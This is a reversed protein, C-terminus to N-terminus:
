DLFVNVPIQANTSAPHLTITLPLQPVALAPTTLVAFNRGVICVPDHSRAVPSLEGSPSVHTIRTPLAGEYNCPFALQPEQFPTVVYIDRFYLIGDFACSLRHRAQTSSEVQSPLAAVSFGLNWQLSFARILDYLRQLALHFAISGSPTARYDSVVHRRRQSIADITGIAAYDWGTGGWISRLSYIQERPIPNPGRTLLYGFPTPANPNGVDCHHEMEVHGAGLLCLSKGGRAIGAETYVTDRLPCRFSKGPTIGNIINKFKTLMAQDRERERDSGILYWDDIGIVVLECDSCTSAIATLMDQLQVVWPNVVRYEAIGQAYWYAKRHKVWSPVTATFSEFAGITREVYSDSLELAVIRFNVENRRAYLDLVLYQFLLRTPTNEISGYTNEVNILTDGHALAFEPFANAIHTEGILVVSHRPDSFVSRAFELAPTTPIAFPPTVM